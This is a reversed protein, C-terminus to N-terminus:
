LALVMFHGAPVFFLTDKGGVWTLWFVALYNFAIVGYLIYPFQGFLVKPVKDFIQVPPRM